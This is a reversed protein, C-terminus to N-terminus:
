AELASLEQHTILLEIADTVQKIAGPIAVTDREHIREELHQCAARLDPLDCVAVGGHLKHVAEGLAELDNERYARRIRQRHEPLEGILMTTVDPRENAKTAEAGGASDSTVGTAATGTEMAAKLKDETIPKILCEDMGAELLREREGPMANATLGVIRPISGGEHLKQIRAAADEGSLGPMHIDMLVLDFRRSRCANIAEQGDRAEVVEAGTRQAIHSVLKLNIDNDDVALIRQGARPEPNTHTVVDTARPVAPASDPAVIRCLERYVTHRRVAKPLCAAAGRHYLSRLENRDVTSAMVVLPADTHRLQSLVAEPVRASLDQRTFGVVLVDWYAPTQAFNVFRERSDTELVDLGWSRVLHGLALRSLPQEDFILAHAGSLPNTETEADSEVAPQKQLWMTFWFTAGSEPESTLGIEGNMQGLLKSSIILGLGAGGFRRTMSTDGQSFATFLKDQDSESLGIGTDAVSVKLAASDAYEEELMVRVVIRGSPTFKIANHVLNTLVQRIRIPDGFLKLPVDDYIFHVLELRKGYAAPALLSLVEEVSDRLDFAINDIVLKGAEIKSFDLIDNVITLLNTCSERITSVYDAQEVDLSTYYLLDAFGVIGNIPTRIEHSVNALFESKVKNAEQARKRADDLEANQVEVSKLTQRLEATTDHIQRRLTQQRHQLSEAMRNTTAEIEGLLGPSDERLRRGIDDSALSALHANHQELWRILTRTVWMTAMLTGLLAAGALMFAPMMAAIFRHGLEGPDPKLTLTSVSSSPNNASAARVDVVVDRFVARSNDMSTVLTAAVERYASGTEPKSALAQTDGANNLEVAAIEPRAALESLQTSIRRDDETQLARGLASAAARGQAAIDQRLAMALVGFQGWGYTMLCLGLVIGAPILVAKYLRGRVGRGQRARAMALVM